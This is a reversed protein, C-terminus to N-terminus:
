GWSGMVPESREPTDDIPKEWCKFPCSNCERRPGGALLRPASLYSIAGDKQYCQPCLPYQHTSDETRYVYGFPRVPGIISEKKALKTKLERNEDDLVLIREKLDLLADFANGIVEKLEHDKSDKALDRANKLTAITSSIVQVVTAGAAPDFVM